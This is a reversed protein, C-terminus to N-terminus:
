GARPPGARRRRWRGSGRTCRAGCAVARARLQVERHRRAVLELSQGLLEPRVEPEARVAAQDVGRCLVLGDHHAFEHVCPDGVPERHLVHVAVAGALQGRDEGLRDDPRREAREIRLDVRLPVDPRERGRGLTVACADDLVGRRARELGVAAPDRADQGVDPRDGRALDHQRGTGPARRERGLEPQVELDPRHAELDDLGLRHRRAEVDEQVPRRRDLLVGDELVQRREPGLGNAVSRSSRSPRARRSDAHWVASPDYRSPMAISKMPKSQCGSRAPTESTPSPMAAASGSSAAARNARAQAPTRGSVASLRGIMSRAGPKSSRIMADPWTKPFAAPGVVPRSTASRTQPVSGAMSMVGNRASRGLRVGTAAPLSRTTSPVTSRRMANMLGNPVAANSAMM